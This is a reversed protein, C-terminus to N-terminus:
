QGGPKCPGGPLKQPLFNIEHSNEISSSYFRNLEFHISAQITTSIRSNMSDRM